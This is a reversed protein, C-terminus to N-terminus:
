SAGAATRAGLRARVFANVDAYGEARARRRILARTSRDLRRRPDPRARRPTWDAVAEDAPCGPGGECGFVRVFRDPLQRQAWQYGSQRTETGRKHTYARLGGLLDARGAYVRHHSMHRPLM